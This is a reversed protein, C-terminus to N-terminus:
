VNNLIYKNELKHVSANNGKTPRIRSNRALRCKYEHKDGLIVDSNIHEGPIVDSNAHEKPIVDSNTHEWTHCRQKTHEGPIVNCNTHEQAGYDLISPVVPHMSEGVVFAEVFVDVLHVVVILRRESHGGLISM